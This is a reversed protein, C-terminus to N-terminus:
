PVFPDAVPHGTAGSKPVFMPREPQGRLKQIMVGAPDCTPSDTFGDPSPRLSSQCHNPIKYWHGFPAHRYFLGDTPYPTGNRPTRLRTGHEPVVRFDSLATKPFGAFTVQGGSPQPNSSSCSALLLCSVLLLLFRM